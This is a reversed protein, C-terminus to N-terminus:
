RFVENILNRAPKAKVQEVCKTKVRGEALGVLKVERNTKMNRKHFVLGLNELESLRDAVGNRRLGTAASLQDYTMYSGRNNFLAVVLDFKTNGLKCCRSKLEDWEVYSDVCEDDCIYERQYVGEVLKYFIQVGSGCQKTKVHIEAGQKEAVRRLKNQTVNRAVKLLSSLEVTSFYRKYLQEYQM